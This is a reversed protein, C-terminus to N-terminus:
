EFLRLSARALTAYDVWMGEAELRTLDKPPAPKAVQKVQLHTPCSDLCELSDIDDLCCLSGPTCAGACRGQMVQRHLRSYMAILDEALPRESPHAKTARLFDMVMM